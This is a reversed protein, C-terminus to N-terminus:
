AVSCTEAEKRSDISWLPLAQLDQASNVHLNV